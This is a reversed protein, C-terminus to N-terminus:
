KEAFGKGNDVQSTVSKNEVNRDDDNSKRAYIAAKM